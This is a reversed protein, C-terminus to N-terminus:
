TQVDTGSREISEPEWKQLQPVWLWQPSRGCCHCLTGASFHLFGLRFCLGGCPLLWTATPIRLSSDPGEALQFSLHWLKEPHREPSSVAGLSHSLLQMSFEPAASPKYFVNPIKIVKESHSQNVDRGARGLHTWLKGLKLLCTILARASFLIAPQKSWTLCHMCLCAAATFARALFSLEQRWICNLSREALAVWLGMCKLDDLVMAWNSLSDEEQGSHVSSRYKKQGCVRSM